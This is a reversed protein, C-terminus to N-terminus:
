REDNDSWFYHGHDSGRQKQAGGKRRVLSFHKLQFHLSGGNLIRLSGGNQLDRLLLLGILTFRFGATWVRLGRASLARFRCNSISAALAANASTPSFTLRSSIARRAPRPM